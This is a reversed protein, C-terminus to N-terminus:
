RRNRVKTRRIEKWGYVGIGITAFLAAFSVGWAIWADTQLTYYLTITYNGTKNMYWANAFGNVAIHDRPNVETGNSYFAAWHPDYTERFVLYYPTTANSVHVTVRTPTDEIFSINPYHMNKIYLPYIKDSSNYLEPFETSYRIIFNSGNIYKKYLSYENINYDKNMVYDSISDSVNLDIIDSPYVLSVTNNNYYLSSKNYRNIFIIHKSNNLNYYIYSFNFAVPYIGKVPSTNVANGQILIYKIGFIGLLNSISTNLLISNDIRYGLGYYTLVSRPLTYPSAYGAYGGSYAPAKVFAAYVDTSWYWNTIEWPSAIPLAAISFDTINSNIYNSIDFVHNPINIKPPLTVQVDSNYLYISIVFIITIIFLIKYYSFKKLKRFVYPFGIGFLFSILFLMIPHVATYPLRFAVLYPFKNLFYSFVPGFPKYILNSLAIFIIQISLFAIVFKKKLCTVSKDFLLFVSSLAIVFIVLAPLFSVITIPLTFFTFITEIFTISYSSLSNISSASFSNSNISNSQIFGSLILSANIAIVLSLIIFFYKLYYKKTNNNALILFVLFTLLIIIINQVFYNVGGFGIESAFFVITLSFWIKKKANNEEKLFYYLNLFALPILIIPMTSNGSLFNIPAVFIIAAVISSFVSTRIGSDKTFELVLLFMGIAGALFQLFININFPLAINISNFSILSADYITTIISPISNVGGSYVLNNWIFFSHYLSFINFLQIPVDGNFVFKLNTYYFINGFIIVAFIFFIIFKYKKDYKINNRFVM